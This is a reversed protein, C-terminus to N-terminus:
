SQQTAPSTAAAAAAAAEKKKYYRELAAAKLRVKNREYFAKYPKNEHYKALIEEKHTEYYEKHKPTYTSSGNM